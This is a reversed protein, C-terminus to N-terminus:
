RRAGTFLVVTDRVRDLGGSRALALVGALGATGTADADIGTVARGLENAEALLADDVVVPRGGSRHMAALLSRWDYTEDDLIGGAISHPPEEWPWMVTSRRGAADTLATDFGVGAAVREAVLREARALAAAGTTQVTVLAPLRRLRGRAVARELGLAVAAALAGGGVQVALTAADAGAVELQEALEYGLTAAGELTLGNQPGQAAFPLAGDAVAALFRTFCPDGREGPGRPCVTVEAGLRDLRQLVSPAADPPVFVELPLRAAAAVVAAALAANGCSSIALRAPAAGGVVRLHLALGFLHRGKHSGSPNVTEDKVWLRGRRAGPPVVDPLTDDPLTDDPLAHLPTVRFRRGDIAAIADQLERVMTLYAADTGGWARHLRYPYLMTRYRVFPDTAGVVM